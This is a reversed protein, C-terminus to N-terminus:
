SSQTTRASRRRRRSLRRGGRRLLSYVKWLPGRAKQPEGEGHAGCSDRIVLHPPLIVQQPTASPNAMRELLLRAAVMGIERPRASVTTLAPQWLAAEEIDDFGIVSFDRGPTQGAARAGLMAGFAVVDNYCLVATPPDPSDILRCVAAYGGDRSVPSPVSLSDDVPLGFLELANRYGRLRDQWASAGKPGGIFAIRRHGHAILHEVAMEAGRVNDAGVYDVNREYLYRAVLVVPLRWRRLRELTEPFSGVTPCLLVGDVGYAHMTELLRSQKELDESSNSLLLPYNHEALHEESGVTMQAFFPNTIDTVVLGVTHSRQTRLSAAARNPVYGLKRM